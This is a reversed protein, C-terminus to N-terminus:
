EPDGAYDLAPEDPAPAPLRDAATLRDIIVQDSMIKEVLRVIGAFDDRKAIESDIPAAGQQLRNAQVIEIHEAALHAQWRMRDLTTKGPAPLTM